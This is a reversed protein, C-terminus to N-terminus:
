PLRLCRPVWGLPTQAAARGREEGRATGPGVEASGGGASGARGREAREAGSRGAPAAPLLRAPAPLPPAPSCSPCRAARPVPCGGARVSAASVHPQLELLGAASPSVRLFWLLMLKNAEHWCLVAGTTGGGHQSYALLSCCGEHWSNTGGLGESAGDWRSPLSSATSM